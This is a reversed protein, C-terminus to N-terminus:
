PRCTAPGCCAVDTADVVTTGHMPEAAKIRNAASAHRTTENAAEEATHRQMPAFGDLWRGKPRLPRIQHSTRDHAALAVFTDAPVNPVSLFMRSNVLAFQWPSSSSRSSTSNLLHILRRCRGMSSNRANRAIAWPWAEDDYPNSRRTLEVERIPPLLGCWRGAPTKRRSSHSLAWEAGGFIDSFGNMEHSRNARRGRAADKPSWAGRMPADYVM